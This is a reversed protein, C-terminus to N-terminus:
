VAINKYHLSVLPLNMNIIGQSILEEYRKEVCIARLFGEVIQEESLESEELFRLVIESVRTSNMESAVM